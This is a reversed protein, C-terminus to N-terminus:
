CHVDRLDQVEGLILLDVDKTFFSQFLFEVLATDSVATTRYTMVKLLQFFTVLSISYSGTSRSNLAGISKVTKLGSSEM